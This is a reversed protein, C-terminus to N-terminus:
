YSFYDYSQAHHCVTMHLAFDRSLLFALGTNWGGTKNVIDATGFVYGATHM